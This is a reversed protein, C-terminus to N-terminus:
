AGRPNVAHRYGALLALALLALGAVGPAPVPQPTEVGAELAIDSPVLGFNSHWRLTGRGGVGFLTAEGSYVGRSTAWAVIGADAAVGIIDVDDVFAHPTYYWGGDSAQQMALVGAASNATLGIFLENISADYALDSLRQRADGAIVQDVTALEADSVLVTGDLSGAFVKGGAAAVRTYAGTLVALEHLPNALELARVGIGPLSVYFRGAAADVAFDNAVTATRLFLRAHSLDRDAVFIDNGAQWYVKGGDADVRDARGPRVNQLQLSAGLDFSALEFPGIAEYLTLPAAAASVSAGFALAALLGGALARLRQGRAAPAQAPHDPAPAPTPPM